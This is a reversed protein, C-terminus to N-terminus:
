VYGYRADMAVELTIKSCFELETKTLRGRRDADCLMEIIEKLREKTMKEASREKSEKDMVFVRIARLNLSETVYLLARLYTLARRQEAIMKQYRLVSQGDKM